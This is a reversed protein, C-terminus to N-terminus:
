IKGLYKKIDNGIPLPTYNVAQGDTVTPNFDGAVGNKVDDIVRQPITFRVHLHNNKDIARGIPTVGKSVSYANVADIFPINSVYIEVVNVGGIDIITKCLDLTGGSSFNPSTATTSGNDKPDNTILRIDFARGDSHEKHGGFAGGGYKSADTVVITEFYGKGIAQKNFALAIKEMLQGNEKISYKTTLGDKIKLGANELLAYTIYSGYVGSASIVNQNNGVGASLVTGETATIDSLLSSYMTSAEILPTETQKIRVGTFNTTMHNPKINHKVTIILYAGHFMPVNNLQFYMMPQIMADGLMEVQAKYSRVSWVNYLNQGVFVKGNNKQSALDDMIQLSEATESFETQDLTVDKFINQNQNGYNVMFAVGRENVSDEDEDEQFGGEIKGDKRMDIGDNPHSYNDNANDFDLKTSVQGVYMCIFSPGSSNIKAASAYNYPTFISKVEAPDNFDIFSPLAIFDFNNQSLVRSLFSYASQNNDGILYDVVQKPNVYFEDGIDKFSRSIFRFSDILTPKTGLVGTRKEAAKTDGALRDGCQFLIEDPSDVGGIWKDYIAKISRYLNLKVENNESVTLSKKGGGDGDVGEIIGKVSKLLMKL